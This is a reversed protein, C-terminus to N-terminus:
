QGARNRERLLKEVAAPATTEFDILRAWEPTVTIATMQAAGCAALRHAGGVDVHQGARARGRGAAV